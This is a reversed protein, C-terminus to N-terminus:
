WWSSLCTTYCALCGSAGHLQKTLGLALTSRWLSRCTHLSSVSPLPPALHAGAPAAPPQQGPRALWSERRKNGFGVYQGEAKLNSMCMCVHNPPPPELSCNTDKSQPRGATRGGHM